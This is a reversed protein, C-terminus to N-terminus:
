DRSVQKEDVRRARMKLQKIRPFTSGISVFLAESIGNTVNVTVSQAMLPERNLNDLCHLTELLIDPSTYPTNEWGGLSVSQFAPGTIFWSLFQHAGIYTHLSPLLVPEIDTGTRQNLEESCSGTKYPHIDLIKLSTAHSLISIIHRHVIDSEPGSIDSLSRATAIGRLHSLKPEWLAISVSRISHPHLIDLWGITSGRLERSGYESFRSYFHVDAVKLQRPPAVISIINCDEVHLTTLNSNQDLSNLANYSFPIHQCELRSLNRFNPFVSFFANILEHADGKADLSSLADDSCYVPHVRCERVMPAIELSTWFNLRQTLRQVHESTFAWRYCTEEATLIFPIFDFTSFAQPKALTAFSICTLRVNSIDSAGLGGFEFIALWVEPPLFRRKTPRIKSRLRSLMRSM